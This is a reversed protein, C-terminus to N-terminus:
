FLARKKKLRMNFLKQQAIVSLVELTLDILNMKAFGPEALGCFMRGMTRFNIQDSCNFVNVKVALAKSLDNTTETKGTGTPGAPAGWLM